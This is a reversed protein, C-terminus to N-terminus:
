YKNIMTKSQTENCSRPRNRLNVASVTERVDLLLNNLNNCFREDYLGLM